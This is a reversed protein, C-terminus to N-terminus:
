APAAPSRASNSNRASSGPLPTEPTCNWLRRRRRSMSIRLAAASLSNRGEKSGEISLRTGRDLEISTEEDIYKLSLKGADCQITDGALLPLDDTLPLTVGDHVVTGSAGKLAMVRAIPSPKSPPAPQQPPKPPVAAQQDPPKQQFHYVGAAVLVMAAAAAVLWLSSARKKLRLPRRMRASPPLPPTRRLRGSDKVATTVADVFAADHADKSRAVVAEVFREAPAISKPDRFDHMDALAEVFQRAFEESKCLEALEAVDGDHLQGRVHREVFYELRELEAPSM